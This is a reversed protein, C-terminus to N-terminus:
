GLFMICSMLAYWTFLMENQKQREYYQSGREHEVRQSCKACKQVCTQVVRWKLIYYVTIKGYISLHKLQKTVNVNQTIKKISYQKKFISINKNDKYIQKKGVKCSIKKSKNHKCWWIGFCIGLIHLRVQCYVQNQNQCLM